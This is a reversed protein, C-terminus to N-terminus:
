DSYGSRVERWHGVLAGPVGLNGGPLGSSPNRCGGHRQRRVGSLSQRLGSSDDSRHNGSGRSTCRQSRIQLRFLISMIVNDDHKHTFVDYIDELVHILSFNNKKRIKSYTEKSWNAQSNLEAIRPLYAIEKEEKSSTYSWYLLLWYVHLVNNENKNLNTSPSSDTSIQTLWTKYVM